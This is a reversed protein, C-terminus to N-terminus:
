NAIHIADVVPLWAAFAEGTAIWRFGFPTAMLSGGDEIDADTKADWLGHEDIESVLDGFQDVNTFVILLPEFGAAIIAGLLEPAM